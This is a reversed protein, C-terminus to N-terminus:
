ILIRKANEQRILNTPITPSISMALTSSAVPTKLVDTSINLSSTFSPGPIVSEDLEALLLLEM